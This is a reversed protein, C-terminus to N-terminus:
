GLLKVIKKVLICQPCDQLHQVHRTYEIVSVISAELLVIGIERIDEREHGLLFAILYLPVAADAMRPLTKAEM